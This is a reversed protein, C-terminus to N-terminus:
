PHCSPQSPDICTSTTDNPPPNGPDTHVKLEAFYELDANAGTVFLVQETSRYQTGDARRILWDVLDYGGSLVVGIEATASSSLNVIEAVRTFKAPMEIHVGPGAGDYVNVYVMGGVYLQGGPDRLVPCDDGTTNDIGIPQPRRITIAVSDYPDPPHYWAVTDIVSTGVPSCSPPTVFQGSPGYTGGFVTFSAAGEVNLPGIVRAGGAVEDRRSESCAASLALLSLWSVLIRHQSPM